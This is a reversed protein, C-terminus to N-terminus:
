EIVIWTEWINQEITAKILEDEENRTSELLRKEISIFAHKIDKDILNRYYKSIFEVPTDPNEVFEEITDIIVGNEMIDRELLVTDNYWREKALKVINEETDERCLIIKKNAM